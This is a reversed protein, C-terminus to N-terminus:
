NGAIPVTVIVVGGCGDEDSEHYAIAEYEATAPDVGTARLEMELMNHDPGWTGHTMNSWERAARTAEGLTEYTRIHDAVHQGDVVLGHGDAAYPAVVYVTKM